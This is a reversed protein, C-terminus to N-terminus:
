QALAKRFLAPSQGTHKKFFKVFNTPEDFGTQYALQKISADSIVLLRKIELIIFEDIVVKATKGSLAKCIENLHKYSIGIKNAYDVANRSQHYKQGLLHKFDIYVRVWESNKAPPMMTCRIREIRLLLLKLLVQLIEDRAFAAASNFELYIEDFVNAIQMEEELQLLPEYLYYNYLKYINSKQCRTLM